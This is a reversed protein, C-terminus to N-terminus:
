RTSTSPLLKKLRFKGLREKIGRAIEERTKQPLLATGTSTTGAKGRGAESTGPTTTPAKATGPTVTGAKGAGPTATGAKGAGVAGVGAKPATATGTSTGAGASGPLASSPPISTQTTTLAAVSTVIRTVAPAGSSSGGALEVLAAVLVGLALVAVVALAGIPAKWNPSAAL